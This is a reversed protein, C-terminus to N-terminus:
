DQGAVSSLVYDALKMEVGRADGGGGRAQRRIGCIGAREPLEAAGGRTLPQIGKSLADLGGGRPVIQHQRGRLGLRQTFEGSLGRM